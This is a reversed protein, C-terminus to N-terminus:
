RRVTAQIDLADCGLRDVAWVHLTDGPRVQELMRAFGARDAAMTIRGGTQHVGM